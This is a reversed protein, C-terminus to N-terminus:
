CGLVPSAVHSLKVFGRNDRFLLAARLLQRSKEGCDRGNAQWYLHGRQATPRRTQPFGAHHLKRPQFM